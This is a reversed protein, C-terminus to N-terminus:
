IEEISPSPITQRPQERVPLFPIGIHKHQRECVDYECLRLACTRPDPLSFTPTSYPANRYQTRRACCLLSLSLVVLRSVSNTTDLLRREREVSLRSLALWVAIYRATEIRTEHMRTDIHLSKKEKKLFHLHVAHFAPANM